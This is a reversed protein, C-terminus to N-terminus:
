SIHNIQDLEDKTINLKTNNSNLKDHCFENCNKCQDAQNKISFHKLLELTINM